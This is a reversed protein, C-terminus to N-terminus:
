LSAKGFMESSLGSSGSIINGSSSNPPLKWNSPALVGKLGVVESIAFCAPTEM